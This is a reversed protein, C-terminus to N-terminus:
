AKPPPQHFRGSKGLFQAAEYHFALRPGSVVPAFDFKFGFPIRDISTPGNAESHTIAMFRTTLRTATMKPTKMVAKGDWAALIQPDSSSFFNAGARFITKRRHHCTNPIRRQRPPM